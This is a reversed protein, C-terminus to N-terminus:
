LRLSAMEESPAEDPGGRQMRRRRTKNLLEEDWIEFKAGLGMLTVRKDLGAVSRLTQPVLIRHQGDPEVRSASGVLCRQLWRHSENLSSLAMVERQVREWEGLPYLWLSHAEWPNYTVVLQGQCLEDIRDRYRTPIALRGKADLNIATEGHFM